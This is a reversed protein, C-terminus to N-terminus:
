DKSTGFEALRQLLLGAKIDNRSRMTEREGAAVVVSKLVIFEKVDM